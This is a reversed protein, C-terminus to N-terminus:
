RGFVRKIADLYATGYKEEPLLYSGETWENWSNLFVAFPGGLPGKGRTKQIDSLLEAQKPSLESEAPIKLRPSPIKAPM